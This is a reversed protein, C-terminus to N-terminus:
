ETTIGIGRLWEAVRDQATKVSSGRIALGNLITSKPCLKKIDDVSRGLASGEHTCYPIITKGSFDYNELFTFVAMPMTGWWNPYGVFVVDYSNMNEVKAALQPRYNNRQERGAQDVCANYDTPYPDVTVIEFLDGGVKNHIQNAIERTNGSHSFYAVLIKKTGSLPQAQEKSTTEKNSPSINGGNDKLEAQTSEGPTASHQEQRTNSADSNAAGSNTTPTKTTGCGALYFVMVLTITLTLMKKM